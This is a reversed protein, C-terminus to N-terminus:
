ERFRIALAMPGILALLLMFPVFSLLAVGTADWLVGGLLPVCFAMGYGITFMMASLRHTEESGVIMAPLALTLVLMLSTCFGLLGCWLPALAAPTLTLGVLAVCGSAGLVLFPVRRGVLRNAFLLSIASAVLQTGNLAALASPLTGAAGAGHLYDPLLSNTGLYSSSIAGLILAILWGRGDTWRPWWDRLSAAAPEERLPRDRRDDRHLSVILAAVGVAPVSWAVFVLRWSGDLLPLLWPLTTGAAILEGSLIGNTYLATGFGVHEPWWRRVLSPLAPQMVAIGAGMLLTMLFLWWTSVVAGRVAAALSSALLGWLLTRRAGWRAILFSGPVAAIAFLLAPLTTLAGTAAENMALDGHIGPVLPPVALIPLRLYLGAGWLTAGIVLAYWGARRGM